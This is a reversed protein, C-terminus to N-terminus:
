RTFGKTCDNGVVGMWVFFLYLKRMFKDRCLKRRQRCTPKLKSARSLIKEYYKCERAIQWYTESQDFVVGDDYYKKSILSFDIALPKASVYADFMYHPNFVNSIKKRKGACDYPSILEFKRVDTKDTAFNLKHKNSLKACNRKFNLKSLNLLCLNTNVYDKYPVKVKRRIIRMQKADLKHCNATYDVDWSGCLGCDFKTKNFYEFLDGLVVTEDEVFVCKEIGFTFLKELDRLLDGTSKFFIINKAESCVIKKDQTSLNNDLVIFKMKEFDQSGKKLSHLLLSTRLADKCNVIVPIEDKKLSIEEKECNEFKIVDVSAMKVKKVKQLYWLYMSCLREALYGSVRYGQVNYEEYAVARQQENKELIHFLWTCYDQFIEKKMIFMNCMHGHRMRMYHKAFKAMEPFDECIIDICNKLDEGFQNNGMGYQQGNTVVLNIPRPAIVDYKEIFSRMYEENLNETVKLSDDIKDVSRQLVISGKKVKKFTFYRRYHFFGYYDADVHKWAWYQATLECYMKNKRSIEDKIGDSVDDDHLMDLKKSSLSTGVQIPHLLKNDLVNFDKHCSVFIKIDKM